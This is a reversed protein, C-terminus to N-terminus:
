INEKKEWLAEVDAAGARTRKERAGEEGEESELVSPLRGEPRREM